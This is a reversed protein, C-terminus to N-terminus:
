NNNRLEGVLVFSLEIPEEVARETFRWGLLEEQVQSGVVLAAHVGLDASNKLLKFVEPCNPLRLQYLVVLTSEFAGCFHSSWAQGHLVVPLKTSWSDTLTM